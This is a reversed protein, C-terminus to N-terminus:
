KGGNLFTECYYYKHETLCDGMLADYHAATADQRAKRDKLGQQTGLVAAIFLAIIILIVAMAVLAILKEDKM